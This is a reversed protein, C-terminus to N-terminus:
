RPDSALVGAQQNNKEVFAKLAPYNVLPVLERFNAWDLLCFLCIAPYNWTDFDGSKVHQELLQYIDKVREHQFNFLMKDANIDLESRMSMMLIVLSDNVADILTMINEEQWTIAPLNHKDSLYRFIVRSDYVCTEGDLIAPVKLAPNKAKLQERGEASYIDITEFDVDINFAAALLRIRRVYPSPITGFLKM